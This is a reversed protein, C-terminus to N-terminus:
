VIAQRSLLTTCSIFLTIHALMFILKTVQYFVQILQITAVLGPSGTNKTGLFCIQSNRSLIHLCLSDKYIFINEMIPVQRLNHKLLSPPIETYEVTM